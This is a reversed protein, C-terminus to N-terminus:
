VLLSGSLWSHSMYYKCLRAWAVVCTFAMFLTSCYVMSNLKQSCLYQEVTEQAHLLVVELVKMSGQLLCNM